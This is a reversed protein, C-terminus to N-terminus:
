RPSSEMAEIEAFLERAEAVIRERKERPEERLRQRLFEELLRFAERREPTEPHAPIETRLAETLEGLRREDVESRDVKGLLSTYEDVLVRAKEGITTELDFAPGTLIQDARWGQFSVNLREVRIRGTETERRVHLVESAELKGVVLPSHSTAIVQLHRFHKKILPVLGQQWEPHMHADIEDVLVLAAENEPKAAQGHIELMRQLLTGIWGLISNTGQSLDDIPIEGDSTTVFVQWTQLDIRSFQFEVGPTLDRLIDFYTELLRVCRAAEESTEPRDPKARLWTNVIWQKAGDLRFDTGGQLLPLLDTIEPYPAGGRTPGSPNKQSVGRLPPFGLIVSRGAQLPTLAASRARVTRGDRSLQTVFKQSGVHLEISGASAGSRLLRSAPEQAHPDDGCFGLAIARLITSKGCGNNGLLVNWGRGFDIELHEFPGVNDLVVRDLAAPEIERSAGSLAPSDLHSRLEALFSEVQPHGETAMYPLLEVGFRASLREARVDLDPSLEVLAFHSRSPSSWFALEEVFSEIFSLRAGIFLFTYASYLHTLFKQFIENKRLLRRYQDTSFIFTEPRGPDGNLKILFRKDNRLLNSITELDETWYSPRVGLLREITSDWSAVLIGALPLSALLHHTTTLRPPRDYFDSVMDALDRRDVSAEIVEAALEGDGRKLLEALRGRSIKRTKLVPLLEAMLEYWSPYGAEIAIGNGTFLVCQRANLSQVLEEPVPPVRSDPM